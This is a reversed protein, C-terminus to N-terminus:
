TRARTAACRRIPKSPGRTNPSTRKRGSNHRTVFISVVAFGSRARAARVLAAHGEHLAGMTPVFGVTKSQTRAAAVAQRVEAITTVIPTM